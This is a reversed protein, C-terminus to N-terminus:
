KSPCPPPPPPPPVFKMPPRGKEVGQPKVVKEVSQGENSMYFNRINTIAPADSKKADHETHNRSVNVVIFIMTCFLGVLFLVLATRTCVWVATNWGTPATKALEQNKEQYV